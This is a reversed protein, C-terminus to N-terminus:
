QQTHSTLSGGCLWNFRRLFDRRRRRSFVFIAPLKTQRQSGCCIAALSLRIHSKQACVPRTENIQLESMRVWRQTSKNIREAAATRTHTLCLHM